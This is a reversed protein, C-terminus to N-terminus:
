IILEFSYSLEALIDAINPTFYEDEEGKEYRKMYKDVMSLWDDEIRNLYFCKILQIGHKQQYDILDQREGMLTNMQIVNFPRNPKKAIFLMPKKNKILYDHRKALDYGLFDKWDVWTGKKTYYHMPAKPIDAPKQKEKCFKFWELSNKLGLPYIFKKCDEYSRFKVNKHPFDNKIGLFDPWSFKGHLERRYIIDPRRPIGKPMNTNWWRDFDIKSTIGQSQVVQKALAYPYTLKPRGIKKNKKKNTM